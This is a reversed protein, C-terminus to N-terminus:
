RARRGGASGWPRTRSSWARGTGARRVARRACGAGGRRPRGRRRRPGRRTTPAAGARGRGPRRGGRPPTRSRRGTRRWGGVIQSGARRWRVRRRRAGARRGRRGGPWGARPRAALGRPEASAASRVIARSASGCSRTRWNREPAARAPLLPQGLAHLVDDTSRSWSRRSRAQAAPAPHDVAADVGVLGGVVEHELGPQVLRRDLRDDGVVLRDDVARLPEGVLDALVEGRKSRWAPNWTSARRGVSSSAASWTM